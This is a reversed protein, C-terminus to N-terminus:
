DFNLRCILKCLLEVITEDSMLHCFWNIHTKNLISCYIMSAIEMHFWYGNILKYYKVTNDDAVNWMVFSKDHLKWEYIIHTTHPTHLAYFPYKRQCIRIDDNEMKKTSMKLNFSLARTHWRASCSNAPMGQPMMSWNIDTIPWRLCASSISQWYTYQVIM